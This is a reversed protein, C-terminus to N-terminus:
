ISRTEAVRTYDVDSPFDPAMAIARKDSHPMNNPLALFTHIGVLDKVIIYRTVEHGLERAKRIHAQEHEIQHAPVGMIRAVRLFRDWRDTVYVRRLKRLLKGKLGM